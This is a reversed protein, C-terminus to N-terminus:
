TPKGLLKDMRGDNYAAMIEKSSMGKLEDHTQIQQPRGSGPKDASTVTTAPAVLPVGTQRQGLGKGWELAQQASAAMSDADAGSILNPPVGTLRAIESRTREVRETEVDARLKAIELMPDAQQDQGQPSIAQVLRRYAEADATNDVAAKEFKRAIEQVGKYKAELEKVDVTADTGEPVKDDSKPAQQNSVPMDKPAHMTQVPANMAGPMNLPTVMAQAHEAPVPPPTQGIQNMGPQTSQQTPTSM